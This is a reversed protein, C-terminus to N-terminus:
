NLALRTHLALELVLEVFFFFTKKVWSILIHNWCGTIKPTLPDYVLLCRVEGVVRARTWPPLSLRLQSSTRQDFSLERSERSSYTM